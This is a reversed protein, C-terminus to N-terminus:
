PQSVVIDDFSALAAQTAVAITGSALATGPTFTGLPTGDLSASVLGAGDVSLRVSYSTGVAITSPFLASMSSITQLNRVQLQTGMNAMLALCYGGTGLTYRLCLLATTAGSSGLSTIKVRATVTTAGSWPSGSAGLYCVRHITSTNGDQAFVHTTDTRVGWEGNSGGSRIWGVAPVNSPTSLTGPATAPDAEFDDCYVGPPCGTVVVAGGAGTAGAVGSGGVGPAGGSGTGGTGIRGGVGTGGAGPTGGSGSGGTGTRGGVGLAGGVGTRGGVGSGGLGSGGMGSGADGLQGGAGFGSGGTGDAFGGGDRFFADPSVCGAGIVGAALACRILWRMPSWRVSGFRPM